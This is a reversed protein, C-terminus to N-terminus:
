TRVTVITDLGMCLAYLRVLDGRASKVCPATASYPPCRGGIGGELAESQRAMGARSPNVLTTSLGVRFKTM